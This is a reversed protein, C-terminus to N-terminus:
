SGPCRPTTRARRSTATRTAAPPPPRWPTASPAAPPAARSATSCRTRTARTPGSANRSCTTSTRTPVRTSSSRSAEPNRSMARMLGGMPDDRDYLPGWLQDGKTKSNREFDVLDKGVKDLFAKDYDGKTGMLQTLVPYGDNFGAASGGPKRAAKLLNDQWEQGMGGDKTATALVQSLNGYIDQYDKANRDGHAFDNYSKAYVLLADPGTKDGAKLSNLLTTSFDKSGSNAAMLNQLRQREEDSLSGGKSLLDTARKADAM